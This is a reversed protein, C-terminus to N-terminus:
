KYAKMVIWDKAFIETQNPLWPMTGKPSKIILLPDSFSPVKKISILTDTKWIERRIYVTKLKMLTALASVFPVLGSIPLIQVKVATM